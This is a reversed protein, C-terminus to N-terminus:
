WKEIAPGSGVASAAQPMIWAFDPTDAKAAILFENARAPEKQKLEAWKAYRAAALTLRAMGYNSIALAKEVEVIAADPLGRRFLLFDAYNGHVHPSRPDVEIQARYHKDADDLRGLMEYVGSYKEHLVARVRAEPPTVAFVGDAQKLKAEAELPQNSEVLADSWNLYLWPNADGGLKEAKQLDAIAQWPYGRLYQVHGLMVYADASKPDAQLADTLEWIAKELTGPRFNRYNIHGTIVYYRAMQVHAAVNRRNSKLVTELNARAREVNEGSDLWKRAMAVLEDQHEPSVTEAQRRADLAARIALATQLRVAAERQEEVHEYYKYAGIAGVGALVVGLVIVRRNM